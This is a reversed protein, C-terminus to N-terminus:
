PTQPQPQSARGRTFRIALYILVALLGLGTLAFVNGGILELGSYHYEPFWRQDGLQFFTTEQTTPVAWLLGTLEIGGTGPLWVGDPRAGFVVWVVAILAGLAAAARRQGARWARIAFHVAAILGPAVWVWHHDWSVPSILLGTLACTLIGLLPQGARHLAAATLLGAVAVVAAVALWPATGAHVSGALRTIMGHLSQNQMVAPFGVRGGQVFLGHLWWTTSDRPVVAFGLGITACFVGAAVAAERFRRTLLLYPIFVLPVLKIGAAIGIGTGKWWKGAVQDPLCLDLLVLLMLVLNVQGFFVTRQVPELWFTGATALLAAGTRVRGSYGLSGLALWCAGALALVNVIVTLQTLVSWPVFSVVAFAVAAFPTYTFNLGELNQWDYLPSALHPDYVPAIHRVIMGGDIYVQLDITNPTLQPWGAAWGAVYVPISIALAIGGWILLRRGASRPEGLVAARPRTLVRTASQGSATV